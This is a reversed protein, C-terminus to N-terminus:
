SKVNMQNNSSKILILFNGFTINLLIVHESFTSNKSAISKCKWLRSAPYRARMDDLLARLRKTPYGLLDEGDEDASPLIDCSGVLNNYYGLLSLGSVAGNVNEFKTCTWLMGIGRERDGKFGIISLLKSFAPPVLSIILLLLGYCLYTGSHVFIDIPDTFVASDPAEDGIPKTAITNAKKNSTKNSTADLSLQDLKKDVNQTDMHGLYNSQQQPGSQQESADEFELDSDDDEDVKPNGQSALRNTIPDKEPSENGSLINWDEGEDDFGGPVARKSHESNLSTKSLSNLARREAMLLGDLTIYAKRLKYFSKMAEVLNINLVGVVAGMLQAQAHCLAFESGPPYISARIGNAEKQAKKLDAWAMAEAEALKESAEKMIDQEFGLISKLFRTVGRGLLHFSSECANLRVDAEEVEDNMIMAACRMADALYESEALNSTGNSSSTAKASGRLWGGLRSM